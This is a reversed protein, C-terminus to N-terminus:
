SVQELKKYLKIKLEESMKNEFFMEVMKLLAIFNKDDKLRNYVDQQEPPTTKFGEESFFEKIQNPHFFIGYKIKWYNTIAKKMKNKSIGDPQQTHQPENTKSKENSKQKNSEKKLNNQNNSSKKQEGYRTYPQLFERAKKAGVFDNKEPKRKHLEYKPKPNELLQYKLSKAKLEDSMAFLEELQKSNTWSDYPKDIWSNMLDEFTKLYEEKSHNLSTFALNVKIKGYGLPKAMGINHYLKNEQGHFTLASILAGIEAKKLNHFRIKGKFTTGKDLPKFKTTVDHNIKGKDDKPLPYNQIINQLPYRKYGRIVADKDMLTTYTNVKSGNTNSQEIYNPYYSANPTGLVEEKKQEFRVTTSKLHSFQVRGKLAKKDRVYGFIAEALDPTDKKDQVIADSISKKYALKFLQTLGIAVIKDAAKKYFIPIKKTEKFKKQWYTGDISNENFYVTKFDEVVYNKVQIFKGNPIFIFENKKNNIDGTFVLTGKKNSSASYIAVQKPIQRGRVDMMKKQLEIPIQKLCSNTAKYKESASKFNKTYVNTAKKVENFSITVPKGCDEIAYGNDRKVLFGCGDSQGVLNKRDTMDRVSLKEDNFFQMKSFSMIELVSRVMGKISSGPIYFEKAGDKNVFHCFEESHNEKDKSHNRIFIPSKAEVTIEIEGSEGDSFPIDHSVKDAWDPYFVEKNLPVFNYPATIM